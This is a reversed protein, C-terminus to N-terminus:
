HAHISRAFLGDQNKLYTLTVPENVRIDDLAVRQKGRSIATDPNVVAGVILEQRNATMVKVVIVPPSAATNVAVVQGTVTHTTSEESAHGWPLSVCTLLLAVILAYAVFIGDGAYQTTRKWVNM